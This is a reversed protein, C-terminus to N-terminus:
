QNYKQKLADEEKMRQRIKNDGLKGTAYRAYLADRERQFNDQDQLPKVVRKAVRKILNGAGALFGTSSYRM